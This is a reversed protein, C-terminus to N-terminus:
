SGLAKLFWIDRLYGSIMKPAMSSTTSFPRDSLLSRWNKKKVATLFLPKETQTKNTQKKGDSVFLYQFSLQM